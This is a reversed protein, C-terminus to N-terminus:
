TKCKCMVFMHVFRWGGVASRGGFAGDLFGLFVDWCGFPRHNRKSKEDSQNSEVVVTSSGPLLLLFFVLYGHFCWTSRVVPSVANNSSRTLVQYFRCGNKTHLTWGGVVGTNYMCVRVYTYPVYEMQPHTHDSNVLSSSSSVVAADKTTGVVAAVRLPLLPRSLLIM